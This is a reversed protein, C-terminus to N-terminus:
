SGNKVQEYELRPPASAMAKLRGDGLYILYCNGAASFRRGLESSPCAHKIRELADGSVSYSRGADEIRLARIDQIWHARALPMAKGASIPFPASWHDYDRHLYRVALQSQTRNDVVTPWADCAALLPLLLYISSRM